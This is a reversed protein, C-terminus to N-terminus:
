SRRTAIAFTISAGGEGASSLSYEVGLQVWMDTGPSPTKEGSNWEGDGSHWAGEFGTAWSGPSERSTAASRWTLQCRFGGTAGNVVMAAMVEQALVAPIWRTLPAFRSTTGSSVLDRSTTGVVEGCAVTCLDLWVNAQGPANTVAQYAVGIRFFFKSGNHSSVSLAGTSYEGAGSHWSAELLSPADPVDTRVAATQIVLRTQIGGQVAKNKIVASLTDVGISPMWPSMWEVQWESTSVATLQASWPGLSQGCAM